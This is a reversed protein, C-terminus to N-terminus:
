GLGQIILLKIKDFNYLEDRLEEYVTNEYSSLPVNTGNNFIANAIKYALNELSDNPDNPQIGKIKIWELIKQPASLSGPPVGVNRADETPEVPQGDVMSVLQIEKVYRQSKESLTSHEAGWQGSAERGRRKIVRQKLKKADKELAVIIKNLTNNIKKRVRQAEKKFQAVDFM